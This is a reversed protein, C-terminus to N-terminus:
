SVTLEKREVGGMRISIIKSVGPEEMTVGYLTESISMTKKNHTVIIFQTGKSFEKVLKIFRGINEEDLPADIEDLFCFPSPKVMYTAFLLAIATMAREGGSLLNINKLKKGPPRVMIDIGSELVNATDTLEISATGGNFLRRFIESFNRQIQTFTDLFMEVSTSNIEEIVSLIDDRAKEIDKKQNIYYEFRKRLDEYEEIALNNIPGLDQIQKKLQQMREQLEDSQEQRVQLSAMDAVKKEYEIWLYEEISNKKFILEVQSKDLTTIREALRNVEEEAKRGSSKREQISTDIQSRKDTLEAISKVLAQSKDSFEILRHEWEQIERSFGDIMSDARQMDEGHTEIQKEVDKMQEALGKLHKEIWDIENENKSLDKEIRTIMDNVGELESQEKRIQDELAVISSRLGEIADERAHIQADLGEKEAYVGTKDFLISRFGDEYSEFLAIDRRLAAMDIGRIADATAAADGRELGELARGLLTDVMDLASDIRGRVEQREGEQQSLEAKRKEIADIIRRIVGELRNRLEKLGTENEKIRKKAEEIRDHFSNILDIKNKRTNFYGELAERDKRIKERIDIGSQGTKDREEGLRQLTKKREDVKKQISEKRAVQDKIMARNKDTKADIDEVRIKYAHLKKELDFLQHQLDNKRKEDKENEASTASLSVMLTDRENHLKEISEQIRKQREEFGRYRILNNKLDLDALDKRLVLYQKTKEAQQAKMDKGREIEKIIDNIRELNDGTEKLKKLSEKKQLKYRSIGAAEEFIYRRDEAKTSLILDMKGQEMVSYASKGIGTDMFLKEIDKLRVPSKNILYESEGDRFMRRGVTVTESDFDLIRESNDITLAVEALSMNKRQDTGNFIIDEMTEGRLNKAQKEGLVWKIADVVNSKGCGNPGVISTIGQEFEIPIKDAFSKFGFLSMSKLFM